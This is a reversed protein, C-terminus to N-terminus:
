YLSGINGCADGRAELALGQQSICPRTIARLNIQPHYNQLLWGHETPSRTTLIPHNRFSPRSQWLAEPFKCHGEARCPVRLTRPSRRVEEGARPLLSAPSCSSPDGEKEPSTSLTSAPFTVLLPSEMWSRGTGKGMLSRPCQQHGLLSIEPQHALDLGKGHSFLEPHGPAM